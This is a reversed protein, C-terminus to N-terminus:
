KRLVKNLFKYILFIALTLLTIGYGYVGLEMNSGFLLDFLIGAFVIELFLNFYFLGVLGFVVMIPWYGIIAFLVLLIDLIIRLAIKM